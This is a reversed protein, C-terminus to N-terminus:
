SAAVVWGRAELAPVLQEVRSPLVWLTTLGVPQRPSHEITLDEVNVDIAATDTLLAVLRGPEDPVIVTVPHWERSKGGHKGPIRAVEMRGREILDTVAAGIDDADRVDELDGIIHEITGVLAHRNLRAIDAWM